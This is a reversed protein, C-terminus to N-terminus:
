QADPLAEHVQVNDISLGHESGQTQRWSARLLGRRNIGVTQLRASEALEIWDVAAGGDEYVFEFEFVASGLGSVKLDITDFDFPRGDARGLTTATHADSLWVSAGSPDPNADVGVGLVCMDSAADVETALVYGNESLQSLHRQPQGAQLDFSLTTAFSHGVGIGYLAVFCTLVRRITPIKASVLRPSRQM